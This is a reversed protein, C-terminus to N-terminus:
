SSSSPSKRAAGRRARDAGGDAGLEVGTRYVTQKIAVVDPDDAARRIFEVVPEFSQYPHHLLIDHKRIAALIDTAKPAAADPLGPVFPPYKLTTSRRGPRDAVVAARHQGSRRLSVPGGRDARVADLLFQALTAPCGAAVELRLPAGFQRQPLEGQLAQRLNKVEEEDIWLDADRTVRFQSYGVIERGPFLDGLHAHLIAVVAARVRQRRRQGRAPLKIVRPLM